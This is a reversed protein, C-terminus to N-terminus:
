EVEWSDLLHDLSSGKPAPKTAPRSTPRRRPQPSSQKVAPHGSLMMMAEQLSYAADDETLGTEVAIRQAMGSDWAFDGELLDDLDFTQQQGPAMQGSQRKGRALLAALAFNIITHAIAPSIGLKEALANAIPAVFPNAQGAGGGSGSMGFIGGLLDAIGMMNDPEQAHSPPKQGQLVGQLLDTLIDNQGAGPKSGASPQTQAGELLAKFIDDLM